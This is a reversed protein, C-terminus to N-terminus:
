NKLIVSNHFEIISELIKFEVEVWDVFEKCHLTNLYFVFLIAEFVEEVISKVERVIILKGYLLFNILSNYGVYAFRKISCQSLNAHNISLIVM